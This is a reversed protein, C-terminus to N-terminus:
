QASLQAPWSRSAPFESSGHRHRDRANGTKMQHPSFHGPTGTAAMHPRVPGAAEPRTRHEARGAGEAATCSSAAPPSLPGPKLGTIEPGMAPCRWWHQRPTLSPAAQWVCARKGRRSAKSATHQQWHEWPATSINPNRSRRERQGLKIRVASTSLFWFLHM